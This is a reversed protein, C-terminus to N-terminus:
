KQPKTLFNLSINKIREVDEENLVATVQNTKVLDKNGRTLTQVKPREIPVKESIHPAIEVLPPETKKFHEWVIAEVIPKEKSMKVKIIPTLIMTSYILVILGLFCLFVKFYVWFSVESLNTMWLFITTERGFYVCWLGIILALFGQYFQIREAQKWEYM